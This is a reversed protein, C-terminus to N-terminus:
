STINPDYERTQRAIKQNYDSSKKLRRNAAFIPTRYTTDPNPPVKNDARNMLDVMETPAEPASKPNSPAM